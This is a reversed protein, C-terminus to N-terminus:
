FVIDCFEDQEFICYTDQFMRTNVQPDDSCATLVSAILLGIAIRVFMVAGVVLQVFYALGYSAPESDVAPSAQDDGLHPIAPNM